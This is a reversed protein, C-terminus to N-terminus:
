AVGAIATTSGFVTSSSVTSEFTSGGFTTEGTQMMTTSGGAFTTEGTQATAVVTTETVLMNMSETTQAYSVMICAAIAFLIGYFKM